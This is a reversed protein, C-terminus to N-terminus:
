PWVQHSDGVNRLLRADRYRLSASNGESRNQSRGNVVVPWIGGRWKMPLSSIYAADTVGPLKRVDTLVKTYFQEGSAPRRTSPFRYHPKCRCPHRRDQVRSRYIAGEVPRSDAFGVFDPARGIGRSGCGGARVTDPSARSRRHARGRSPRQLGCKQVGADRSRSRLGHRYDRHPGFCAAVDAYGTSSGAPHSSCQPVLRSLLPLAAAAVGIAGVGGALGLM